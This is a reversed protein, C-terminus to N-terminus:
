LPPPGGLTDLQRRRQQWSPADLVRVIHDDGLEMGTIVEVWLRLRRPDGEVPSPVQLRRYRRDNYVIVNRSNESYDVKNRDSSIGIGEEPQGLSSGDAGNWFFFYGWINGASSESLITRGDPSFVAVTVPGHHIM